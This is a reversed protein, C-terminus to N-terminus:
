RQQRERGRGFRGAALSASALGVVAFPALVYLAALTQGARDLGDSAYIGLHLAEVVGLLVAALFLGHFSARPLPSRM